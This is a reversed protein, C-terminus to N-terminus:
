LLFLKNTRKMYALLERQILIWLGLQKVQQQHIRVLTSQQGDLLTVAVKTAEVSLTEIQRKNNSDKLVVYVKSGFSYFNKLKELNGSGFLVLLTEKLMLLIDVCLTFLKEDGVDSSKFLIIDEEPVSVSQSISNPFYGLVHGSVDISRGEGEAAKGQYM